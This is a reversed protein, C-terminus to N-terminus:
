LPNALLWCLACVVSVTVVGMTVWFLWATARQGLVIRNKAPARRPAPEYRSLKVTM